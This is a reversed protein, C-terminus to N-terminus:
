ESCSKYVQGLEDVKLECTAGSDPEESSEKSVPEQVKASEEVKGGENASEMNKKETDESTSLVQETRSNDRYITVGKCGLKYALEYLNATDEVSFNEPANATKSISSDTWQQVAAQVRIHDEPSLDLATVFYPPLSGDESAYSKALPIKVKHFGLRSQRYFEFAYYPEIGTSSGLMTGVTGTPAQTILTVNRMGKEHIYQKVHDPLKQVFGSQMFKEKDFMPFKGKEEALNSSSKYAEECIVKYVKDIIELSEPSGYKVRLKILMEGLGLTGCGVRRENMQNEKNEEFHYPTLDIVNDLFRNLVKVSAKLEEWDIEYLPGQQDEGVQKLFSAMYLHGLNCVGWPPLGQEGCPNTCVIPNFYHSNSLKNYREIFVIGPEASAHASSVIMQWVDRAKVVKYVKVPRGLEKWKDLDGDWEQNYLERMGEAEYDPFELNWNADNEVAEMFKDSILASVNANEIMGKKKKATIFEMIDPHWDQLMLMLAGRRSGGQEILGTAYSFLGGWSVAGSSKGHVGKVYAYRPRLTSINIGVGGGRSMIETMQYLTDKIISERSDKPSPIVYCNFLTLNKTYADEGMSAGTMIRGAPQIHKKQLHELFKGSWEKQLEETQEVSSVARAVRKHADRISEIPRDCMWISTEFEYNNAKDAFVGTIMHLKVKDGIMSKVVGLDKKPYKADEKTIAIVLDGLQISEKKDKVSYRDLFISRGLEDFTDSEELIRRAQESYHVGQEQLHQVDKQVPKPEPVELNQADETESVEPTHEETQEEIEPQVPEQISSTEEKPQEQVPEVHPQEEQEREETIEPEESPEQVYEVPKDVEEQEQPVEVEHSEQHYTEPQPQETPEEDNSVELVTSHDPTESETEEMVEPQEINEPQSVEESAQEVPAEQKPEDVTDHVTAKSVLDVMTEFDGQTPVKGSFKESILGIINRAVGKSEEENFNSREMLVKSISNVTQEYQFDVIEGNSLKIKDIM